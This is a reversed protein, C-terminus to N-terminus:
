LQKTPPTCFVPFVELKRYKIISRACCCFAGACITNSASSSYRLKIFIGVFWFLLSFISSCPTSSISLLFYSTIENPPSLLYQKVKLSISGNSKGNNRCSNVEIVYLVNFLIMFSIRSPLLPFSKVNGSNFCAIKFYTSRFSYRIFGAVLDAISRASIGIENSRKSLGLQTGILTLDM